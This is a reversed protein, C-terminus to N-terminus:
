NTDFNIIYTTDTQLSIPLPRPFKGVVVLENSKNYLGVTTVYPSFYSGTVFDHYIQGGSEYNIDNISLTISGTGTGGLDGARIELIDGTNYGRGTFIESTTPDTYVNISDVGSSGDITFSLKAGKSGGYTDTGDINYATQSQQTNGFRVQGRIPTPKNSNNLLLNFSDSYKIPTNGVSGPQSQILHVSDNTVATTFLSASIESNFGNVSNIATCFGQAIGAASGTSNFQSQGLSNRAGNGTEADVAVGIFELSTGGASQLEVKYQPGITTSTGSKFVYYTSSNKDGTRNYPIVPSQTTSAPLGSISGPNRSGFLQNSTQSLQGSVGLASPNTTSLFESDRVSCKYQNEDITISSSYSLSSSM